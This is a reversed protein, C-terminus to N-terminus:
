FTNEIMGYIEDFANDARAWTKSSKQCLRKKTFVNVYITYITLFHKDLIKARLYWNFCFVPQILLPANAM